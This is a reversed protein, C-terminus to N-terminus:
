ARAALSRGTGSAPSATPFQTAVARAGPFKVLTTQSKNFLVGDLSSYFANAPDVTIALLTTCYTFAGDGINTVSSPITVSTLSSCHTFAVYGISTVSDSITVSTLHTCYNFAGDGIHTVKSPITVSRLGTCYTFAYDGINTVSSPIAVSTLSTCYYFAYVGISTVPLGNITDPINVAGGLGSYGTITIAGNNTTYDFQAQVALRLTLLLLLPLVCAAHARPLRQRIFGEGPSAITSMLELIRSM